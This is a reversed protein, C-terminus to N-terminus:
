PQIIWLEKTHYDDALGGIADLADRNWVYESNYRPRIRQVLKGVNASYLTTPPTFGRFVQTGSVPDLDTYHYRRMDMWIEDHGWGWLAIYKQSMIHSLTVTAPVINTDALFRAKEAATIQTPTQGADTNRANVFDFHSSIGNIYATRALAADGKHLAAEAKIFQLESYTMVPLKSRDAFIYRSPLGLGNSGTYGWFNRPRQPQTLAGFGSLNVDVGTYKQNASDIALMRSMRPDVANSDAGGGFQTGNMLGVIFQTQRYLPINNRSAGWFNCDAFDTSTCPYALLPDDVNGTFSSDVLAIVRDPNYSAKNSFHNLSLALMGAALKLWKTRDGNYIKDGQGLYGADVAGDTRKLLVMASDLLREVEQYAYDQPDYDFKTRTQDIAEKIIIEGHLDTLVQWGWAKLILAVGLLDWRQEAEAKTTMDVLNQGLSWYVDRWQQGGNDSGPDYGMKGWSQPPSFNTTTSYWEQAYHGVFRGDFQPSTVMWHLMPPLYLNASVSQPGNPNTNVDLFSNCGGAVVLVAILLASYTTRM